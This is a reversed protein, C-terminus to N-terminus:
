RGKSSFNARKKKKLWIQIEKVWPHKTDLKISIPGITRSFFIKFCKKHIKVNKSNPEPSPSSTLFTFLKCISPHVSSRRDSYSVQAKLEPSSVIDRGLNAKEKL